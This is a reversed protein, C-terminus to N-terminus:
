EKVEEWTWFEFRLEWVGYPLNVWIEQYCGITTNIIM